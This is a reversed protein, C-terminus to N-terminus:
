ATPQAAQGWVSNWPAKECVPATNLSPYPPSNGGDADSANVAFCYQEGPWLGDFFEGREGDTIRTYQRFWDGCLGNAPLPRGDLVTPSDEPNATGYRGTVELLGNVTRSDVNHWHITATVHGAVTSSVDWTVTLDTPTKLRDPSYPGIQIAPEDCTSAQSTAKDFPWKSISAAFALYGIILSGAGILVGVKTWPGEDVM